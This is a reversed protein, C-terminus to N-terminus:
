STEAAEAAQRVLAAVDLILALRGDGRITAGSFEEIDRYLPGLGKIVTQHEGVVRDVALGVRMGDVTVVVIPEIAPTPGPIAFTERLRLCPVAQGRMNLMAAEPGDGSRPM